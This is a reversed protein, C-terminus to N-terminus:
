LFFPRVLHGSDLYVNQQVETPGFLHRQVELTHLQTFNPFSLVGLTLPFMAGVGRSPNSGFNHLSQAPRPESNPPVPAWITRKPVPKTQPLRRNLTQLTVRPSPWSNQVGGLHEDRNGCFTAEEEPLVVRSFRNSSVRRTGSTGSCFAASSVFTVIAAQTVVFHFLFAIACM